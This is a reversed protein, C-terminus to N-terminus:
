LAGTDERRGLRITDTQVEQWEMHGVSVTGPIQKWTGVMRSDASQPWLHLNRNGRQTDADGEVAGFVLSRRRVVGSPAFDSEAVLPVSKNGASNKASAALDHLEDQTLIEKAYDFWHGNRMERRDMLYPDRNLTRLKVGDVGIDKMLDLFPEIEAMNSRMSVFTAFVTPLGFTSRKARCLERLNHVVRVFGDNRYRAYGESTASDISVYLGLKKGLLRHRRAADPM